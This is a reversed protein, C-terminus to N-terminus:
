AFFDKAVLGKYSVYKVKKNFNNFGFRYERGDSGYEKDLPRGIILLIIKVMKMDLHTQEM